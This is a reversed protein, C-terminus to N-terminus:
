REEAVDALPQLEIVKNEALTRAEKEEKLKMALQILFDPSELAHELTKETM